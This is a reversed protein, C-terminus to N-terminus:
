NRRHREKRLKVTATLSEAYSEYTKGAILGGVFDIDEKPIQAVCKLCIPKMKAAAEKNGSSLALTKGCQSCTVQIAAIQQEGWNTCVIYEDDNNM